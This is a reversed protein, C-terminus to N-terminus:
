RYTCNSIKHKAMVLRDAGWFLEGDVVITPIGFVGEASLNKEISKMESSGEDIFDLFLKSKVGLEDIIKCLTQQDEIDIECAWFLNFIRNSFDRFINHRTAFLAAIGALTTNYIKKPSKIM